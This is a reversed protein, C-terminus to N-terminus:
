RNRRCDTLEGRLERMDARLQVTEAAAGDQRWDLHAIRENFFCVAGVVATLAGLAKWWDIRDAWHKM